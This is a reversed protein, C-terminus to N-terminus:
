KQDIGSGRGNYIANKEDVWLCEGNIERVCMCVPACVHVCEVKCREEARGSRDKM